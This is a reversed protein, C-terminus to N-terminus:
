TNGGSSDPVRPHTARGAGPRVYELLDSGDVLEMTFFWHEADVFLEGLGVLNPRHIDQLTRFENKLRLLAHPDLSHLTKLAVRGQRQRDVAEYVTGMGGSGLRSVLEFRQNGSFEM